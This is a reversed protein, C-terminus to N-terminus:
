GAEGEMKAGCWPCFPSEGSWDRLDADAGCESCKYAPITNWKGENVNIWHGTKREPQVSPLEEIEFVGVTTKIVGGYENRIKYKPLNLVAERSICDSCLEPQVGELGRLGDISMQLAVEKNRHEPQFCRKVMDIAQSRSIRDDLKNFEEVAADIDDEMEDVEKAVEELPRICNLEKIEEYEADKIDESLAQLLSDMEKQSLMNSM